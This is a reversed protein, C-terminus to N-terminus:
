IKLRKALKRIAAEYQAPTLNKAQLKAKEAEYERLAAAKMEEAEKVIRGYLAAGDITGLLLAAWEGCFFNRLETASYPYPMKRGALVGRLDSVAQLVIAERLLDLGEIHSPAANNTPINAM